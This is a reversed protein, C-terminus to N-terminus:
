FQNAYKGIANLEVDLTIRSDQQSVRTESLRRPSDGRLPVRTCRQLFQLMEAALPDLLQCSEVEKRKWQASAAPQELNPDSPHPEVPSSKSPDLLTVHKDQKFGLLLRTPAIGVGRDEIPAFALERREM